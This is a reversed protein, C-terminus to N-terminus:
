LLRVRDYLAAVFCRHFYDWIDVRLFSDQEETKHRAQDRRRRLKLPELSFVWRLLHRHSSDAEGEEAQTEQLENASDSKRGDPASARRGQDQVPEYANGRRRIGLRNATRRSTKATPSTLRRNPNHNTRTPECM